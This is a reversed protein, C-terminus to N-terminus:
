DRNDRQCISMNYAHMCLNDANYGELRKSESIQDPVCYGVVDRMLM